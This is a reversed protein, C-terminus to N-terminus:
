QVEIFYILIYGQCESITCHVHRSISLSELSIEFPVHMRTPSLTLGRLQILNPVKSVDHRSASERTIEFSSCVNIRSREEIDQVFKEQRQSINNKHSVGEESKM